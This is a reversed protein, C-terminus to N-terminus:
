AARRDASVRARAAARRDLEQHWGAIVDIRAKAVAARGDPRDPDPGYRRLRECCLEGLLWAAFDGTAQAHERWWRAGVEATVLADKVQDFNGRLESLDRITDALVTALPSPEDRRPVSHSEDRM